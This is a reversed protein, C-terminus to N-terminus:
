KIFSGIKLSRGGEDLTRVEYYGGALGETSIARGYPRIRIMRGEADNLLIFEPSPSLSPLLLHNNAQPLFQGGTYATEFTSIQAAESENGSRDIATVAFNLGNIIATENNYAFACSDINAAVIHRAQTIDVPYDKSAYVNYKIQGSNDDSAEWCLRMGNAYRENHLGKPTCPAISDRGPCAPTLAPYPYYVDKLFDYLGKHNADLFAYRFYAQGQLGISRIFYLERTIVDLAWDKERPSLFYIGLGPAVTKGADQEKWDIAFPYFHNGQFYMMPFLMDHIGERLWGQADQYVASYANWGYSSYRSLDDFKGIPSSSIKVWPKVAKVANYMERVCHTINNRRWQAKTQGKGYKKYSAQDNFRAANEPYRIYDFHIGDVDYRSVIEKCIAALYDATEPIGPNLYWSGEHRICLSPHKKLVSMKDRAQAANTKFCPITVMWAHLEMGRRHCEEIAFALPDYAPAKGYRGTICADWPEIESPYITTGRVRTQLLVTNINIAKLRDLIDCLERKQAAIGEQTNAKSKPWDLSEYTTLWVARMERKPADPLAVTATANQAAIFGGWIISYILILVLRRAKQM